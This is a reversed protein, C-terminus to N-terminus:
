DAYRADEGWKAIFIQQREKSTKIYEARGMNRISSNINHYYRGNVKNIGAVYQKIGRKKMEMIFDSDEWGYGPGFREDCRLGKDFITKRFMGYYLCPHNQEKVYHLDYCIKEADQETKTFKNTYAGIADICKHSELYNFFCKISGPVPLIDGDLLLVYEGKAKDIGQNKGVSVGMNEKNKITALESCGDTSGNDVVIVEHKFYKLEEDLMSLTKLLTVINNWTLICVSIKIYPIENEKAWHLDCYFSDGKKYDADRGCETCKWNMM